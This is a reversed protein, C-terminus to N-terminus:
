TGGSEQWRGSRKLADVVEPPMYKEDHKALVETAVFTGAGNMAGLAVVGQGERFLAPLVGNYEVPVTQKGDTVTFRVDAGSGHHLSKQEVLGGLHFAIGPQVRGVAIDSPSRFYETNQGLEYIIAAALVGGATLLAAAFALRRRKKPTM